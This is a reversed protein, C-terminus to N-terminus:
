STSCAGRIPAAAIRGRWEAAKEPKGWTEYLRVISKGIEEQARGGDVPIAAKWSLLKDYSPLLLAEAGAYDAQGALSAGLMCQTAFRAWSEPAAKEYRDLAERLLPAAEAFRGQQLRVGGLSAMVSTTDPHPGPLVRRRAELVKEFLDEARAHNGQARYNEALDNMTALTFVHEKGLTRTQGELATVFLPEASLYKGQYRYLIGLSYMTRLTDPDNVGQLRKRVELVQKILNEAAAYKCQGRYVVSLNQMTTLTEGHEAGSVRRRAEVLKVFLPEAKEFKGQRFYEVALTNLARLTDPHDDGMVRRQREYSETSVAEAEDYRGQADYLLALASMSAITDRHEAGLIRRRAALTKQFLGESEAYKGEERYIIALNNISTLTDPHEDGLLRKMMGVVLMQLPEAKANQGESRYTQALNNLAEVTRPHEEGQVLRRTELLKVFISEAQPYKAQHWYLSGLNNLTDLTDPHEEGRIRRFIELAKLYLSEAEGYKGTTECLFALDNMTQLTAPSERGLVQRRLEFVRRFLREAEQHKSQALYVVALNNLTELTDPHREGLVRRQADLTKQFLQAAHDYQGQFHFVDALSGMSDLTQPANAGLAQRRLAVAWDFHKQAEAFLGLDQYARGMTQRISAEVLPQKDFQGSIRAAARDLATRVKLDPDPKIGPRAQARAGAQGLLDNQLFDTVARATAAETDARQKENVAANRQQQASAEATRARDREMTADREAASARDRQRVAAREANRARIAQQTSVVVGALLAVFVAAFGAVLTRHRRAFKQLQYVASAPRAAIPEDRLHRQIDAALAAASPYRRSKDKELARTVITEIDGRYDRNISSLSTPDEERIAQVAEHLKRSLTYPMKGSLLEFLIVGLSYVDSRTDVGLPDALVQEPSMYALTGVLQGVDTQRTIQADSDTLRAVGFDLIKPQGAEDVLINMPKLDRHIIGHQHAHQVAECIKITLELRQRTNLRNRDAHTRLDEGRIFEMAFYPQPGFGSDTAGAEYIQAIGPHQLRGLAQSELDFRRILEAGTLGPRIIKLAVIRRPHDQEAEYVTGMGGEGAVRLIRYRGIISGTAPKGGILPVQVAAMTASRSGFFQKADLRRDVPGAINEQALLSEVERRLDEDGGCAETLFLQQRDPAQERATHYVEEIRRWREPSM